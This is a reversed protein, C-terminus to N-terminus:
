QRGQIFRETSWQEQQLQQKQSHLHSQTGQVEQSQKAQQVLEKHLWQSETRHDHCLQSAHREAVAEWAQAKRKLEGSERRGLMSM